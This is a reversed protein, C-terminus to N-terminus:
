FGTFPHVALTPPSCHARSGHESSRGPDEAKSCKRLSAVM